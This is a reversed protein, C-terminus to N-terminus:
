RASKALILFRIANLLDHLACGNRDENEAEAKHM